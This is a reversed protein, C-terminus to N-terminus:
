VVEDASVFTLEAEDLAGRGQMEGCENALQLLVKSIPLRFTLL